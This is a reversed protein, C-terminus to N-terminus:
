GQGALGRFAGRSWSYGKGMVRHREQECRGLWGDAPLGLFRFTGTWVEEEGRECPGRSRLYGKGDKGSWVSGRLGRYGVGIGGVCGRSRGRSGLNGQGM